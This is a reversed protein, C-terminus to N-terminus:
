NARLDDGTSVPPAASFSAAAPPAGALIQRLLDAILGLAFVLATVLLSGVGLEIVTTLKFVLGAVLCFLGILGTMGSLVLFIKIPNYYTIAQVIYQLTLLSDKFLRVKTAGIRKHYAIPVYLVPRSQMMYALTMSTTFSFRDCLHSFLTMAEARSFVRLGSNPDPIARAAAFEVLSKLLKRMPQKFWSERYHEGQREGVVMAFGRRYEAVLDPIAEIPYTGDADTIVITDFGAAQIGAKLSHGYGLNQVKRILIAGAEEARDATHDTSGDDVVVIEYPVLGAGELTSRVTAVTAAIAGEENYAPIVVSIM